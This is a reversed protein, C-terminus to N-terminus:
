AAASHKPLLEDVRVLQPGDVLDSSGQRRRSRGMEDRLYQLGPM